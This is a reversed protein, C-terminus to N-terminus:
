GDITLESERKPQKNISVFIDAIGSSHTNDLTLSLSIGEM